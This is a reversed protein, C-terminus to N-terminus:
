VFSYRLADKVSIQELKKDACDRRGFIFYKYRFKKGYEIKKEGLYLIFGFITFIFALIILINNILIIKEIRNQLKENIDPNKEIENMYQVKLLYLLYIIFFISCNIFFFNITNKALFIFWIFIIISNYFIGRLKQDEKSSLVVFFVLIIFTFVYKCRMSRHMIKQFRCPLVEGIYNGCIVLVLLFLSYLPIVSNLAIM